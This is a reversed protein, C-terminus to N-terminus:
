VNFMFCFLTWKEDTMIVRRSRDGNNM